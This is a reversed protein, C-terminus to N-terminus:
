KLLLGFYKENLVVRLVFELLARYTEVICCMPVVLCVRAFFLLVSLRPFVVVVADSNCDM